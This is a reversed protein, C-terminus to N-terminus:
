LKDIEKAFDVDAQTVAEASHTTVSIKLTKNKTDFHLDSHHNQADMTEITKKLFDVLNSFETFKWTKELTNNKYVWNSLEQLAQRIEENTLLTKDEM